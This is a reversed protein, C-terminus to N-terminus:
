HRCATSFNCLRIVIPSDLLISLFRRAAEPDLLGVLFGTSGVETESEDFECDLLMSRRALGRLPTDLRRVSSGAVRISEVLAGTSDIFTLRGRVNLWGVSRGERYHCPRSM